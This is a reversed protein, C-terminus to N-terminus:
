WQTKGSFENLYEKVVAKNVFRASDPDLKISTQKFGQIVTKLVMQEFYNENNLMKTNLLVKDDAEQKVNMLTEYIESERKSIGGREIIRKHVRVYKDDNQYKAKLLNNKRNLEIAKNYIIRLAGINAKMEDQTVEDFKKEKFLRKLEDYLSVFEPDKPDFNQALEERTKRLSDKLQDALVLENESVKRFMFLINELAVNLLNTNESGNELAEKQNLTAVHAEAVKYLDNFLHFDTKELLDFHGYLRILNYINKLNALAKRIELVEKKDQIQQIQRSFLERNKLDFHFLLEKIEKIEAEIEEKSKFLNNYTDIEDGLEQQLEDFYAKNTADFEKQIDAFDVVFGFRFDKYPRNVRTLTQLLNHDKIIRGMYLKKLRPADFGTLLMNFVFLFDIKGEKFDEVQKKREDKTGADHLILAASLAKPSQYFLPKEAALSYQNPFQAESVTQPIVYKAQFIEYLKEAQESSDCVVMAGINKKGFKVQSDNFDKVIYELMPEVFREHAYIQKKELGGKMIDLDKLVQALQMKYSTEIGERILKLTYGDAISQNYYYKHIYNGFTDKSRRDTAILPTGTLGIIIANKDANFLNALFSGTPNYSRHVEDLFYVRQTNLDYDNTKLIHTEEKFKQINVVTVERQGTSNHIARKAQFDKLLEEKSNVTHVILGRCSFERKAQELLDIRDVIFYFKPVINKRQFYDTLYHTNFFALATKGSGQTHWIIGKKECRNIIAEIAKTAFLQPYRMIHKEIGREGKIYAIGFRLIFSFREPSFLSTLIRNTPTNPEKNSIFEDSHKIVSLNNDKLVINELDDNEPLLLSDLNLLHEEKFTNVRVESYSSTAYFAGQIPVISEADYEMNNSFVVLQFQNIFKRFKSNQNRKTKMRETEAMIGRENDPKKVEIIALPMGNIFLTIDPRFEDEGNKFTYETVVHFTNNSFNKFDILRIGSTATIAEYFAKGLDENELILSLDEYLRKIHSSELDPNIKQISESFVDTLINTNEDSVLNKLSLYRFGLRCLHLIAPIKVRTNENFAM